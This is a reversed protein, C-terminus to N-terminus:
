FAQFAGHRHRGARAHQPVRWAGAPAIPPRSAGWHLPPCSPNTSAMGTRGRILQSKSYNEKVNRRTAEVIVAVNVPVSTRALFASLTDDQIALTNMSM